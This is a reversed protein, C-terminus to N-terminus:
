SSTRVRRCSLECHALLSQMTLLAGTPNHSSRLLLQAVAVAAACHIPEDSSAALQAMEYGHCLGLCSVSDLGQVHVSSACGAEELSGTCQLWSCAALPM